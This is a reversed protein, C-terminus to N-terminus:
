MIFYFILQERLEAIEIDEDWGVGFPPLILIVRLDVLSEGLGLAVPYLWYVVRFLSTDVMLDVYEDVSEAALEAGM